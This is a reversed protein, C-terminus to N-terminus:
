MVSNQDAKAKRSAKRAKSTRKDQAKRALDDLRSQAMASDTSERRAQWENPKVYKRRTTKPTIAMNCLALAIITIVIAAFPNHNILELM